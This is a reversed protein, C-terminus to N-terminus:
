RYGHPSKRMHSYHKNSDTDSKVLLDIDDEYFLKSLDGEVGIKQFLNHLVTNLNEKFM